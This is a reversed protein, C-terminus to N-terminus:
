AHDIVVFPKMQNYVASLAQKIDVNRTKEASKGGCKTLTRQTYEEFVRRERKRTQSFIM